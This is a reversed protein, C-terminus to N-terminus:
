RAEPRYCQRRQDCPPAASPRCPCSMPQWTRPLHACSVSLTHPRSEVRCPPLSRARLITRFISSMPWNATMNRGGLPSQRDGGRHATRYDCDNAARAYLGRLVYRVGLERGVSRIDVARGKYVFSSNRAIVFFSRFRSLETIIDEALGDAFYEQEADGSMNQFPLVAISPKDPLALAPRAAQM